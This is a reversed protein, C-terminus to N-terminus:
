QWDILKLYCRQDPSFVILWAGDRWEIQEDQASLNNSLQTVNCGSVVEGDNKVELSLTELEKPIALEQSLTQNSLGDIVLEGNLYIDSLSSSGPISANIVFLPVTQNSKVFNPRGVSYLSYWNSSIDGFAFVWYPKDANATIQMEQQVLQTNRDLLSITLVQENLKDFHYSYNSRSSTAYLWHELNLERKNSLNSYAVLHSVSYDTGGYVFDFVHLDQRVQFDEVNPLANVNSDSGGCGSLLMASILFILSNLLTLYKM